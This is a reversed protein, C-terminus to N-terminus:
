SPSTGSSLTPHITALQDEVNKELEQQSYWSDYRHLPFIYAFFILLHVGYLSAVLTTLFVPVLAGLDLDSVWFLSATPGSLLTGPNLMLLALALSTELTSLLLGMLVASTHDWASNAVFTVLVCFTWSRKSHTWERLLFRSGIAFLIMSLAVYWQLMVMLLGFSLVRYGFQCIHFVSCPLLRM